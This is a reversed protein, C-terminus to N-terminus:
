DVVTLTPVPRRVYRYLMRPEGNFTVLEEAVIGDRILTDLVQLAEAFDDIGSTAAAANVANARYELNSIIKRGIDM